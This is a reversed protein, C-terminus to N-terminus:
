AARETRVSGLAGLAAEGAAEGSRVAGEMTAPWGTDTYTGALFVGAHATRTEPRLRRTGPEQRWTAAREATSFFEVVRAGRVTPLLRALAPVFVDRLARRSHGLWGEAASLSIALYQGERLGAGETRDFMWQVPSDVCGAFAHGLVPRDFVVHLNVIASRGLRCLGARDVGAGDPLLGVADEHPVALIVADAELWDGGVRVAPRRGTEARLGDVKARWRVVAGAAALARQAPAAHAESLPVRAWGLDSADAASFLGTQLVKVALALSADRAPCNLTARVLLDWLTEISRDSEGRAALWGGLSQEDVALDDPDLLALGRANRIARLRDVPSLPTFRLLSPLFQASGPLRGRRLWSTRRGPALVPIALRPQIEVRHASGIRELFGLYASCCRLFVHQGNDIELGRLETSWTAGGLRPRRELLTVRAGADACTLAAQLGSLGGGVVIVHTSTM